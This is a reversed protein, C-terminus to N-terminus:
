IFPPRRDGTRRLRTHYDPGHEEVISRLFRVNKEISMAYLDVEVGWRARFHAMACSAADDLDNHMRERMVAAFDATARVLDYPEDYGQMGAERFEEFLDALKEPYLEDGLQALLDATAVACAADRQDPSSFPIDDFRVALDTARVIAAADDADPTRGEHRFAERLFNISRQVHTFTYKAGTGEHDGEAMIYGTDHLLAAALGLEVTRPPLARREIHMGHLLRATALTTTLTHTLDHYAANSAQYGPVDGIFLRVVLRFLHQYFDLDMSPHMLRAITQVETDLGCIDRIYLRNAILKEPNDVARELTKRQVISSSQGPLLITAPLFLKM